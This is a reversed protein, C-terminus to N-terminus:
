IGNQVPKSTFDVGGRKRNHGVYTEDHDRLEPLIYPPNQCREPLVRALQNTFPYLEEADESPTALRQPLTCKQLVQGNQQCILSEEIQLSPSANRFAGAVFDSVPGLKRSRPDPVRASSWCFRTLLM